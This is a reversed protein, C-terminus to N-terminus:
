QGIISSGLWGGQRDIVRTGKVGPQEAAASRLWVISTFLVMWNPACFDCDHVHYFAPIVGGMCFLSFADIQCEPVGPLGVQHVRRM